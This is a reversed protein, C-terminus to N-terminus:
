NHSLLVKKKVNMHCLISVINDFTKLLYGNLVQAIQIVNIQINCIIKLIKYIKYIKDKLVIGM